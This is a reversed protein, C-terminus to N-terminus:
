VYVEANSTRFFFFFFLFFFVPKEVDSFPSADSNNPGEERQANPKGRKERGPTFKARPEFSSCSILYSEGFLHILTKRRTGDFHFAISRLVTACVTAPLPRPIRVTSIRDIPLSSTSASRYGADTQAPSRGYRIGFLYVSFLYYDSDIHKVLDKTLLNCTHVKCERLDWPLYKSLIVCVYSYTDVSRTLKSKINIAM